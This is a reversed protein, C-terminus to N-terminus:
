RQIDGFTADCLRGSTSYVMLGLKGSRPATDVAQLAPEDNLFIAIQPGSTVIKLRVPEGAPRVTSPRVARIPLDLGEVRQYLWVGGGATGPNPLGDPIYIAMLLNEDDQARFVLTAQCSTTGVLASFGVDDVTEPFLVMSAGTETRGAVRGEDDLSWRGSPDGVVRWTAPLRTSGAAAPRPTQAPAPPSTPPPVAAPTSAPAVAATTV